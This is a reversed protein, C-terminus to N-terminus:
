KFIKNWMKKSITEKEEVVAIDKLNSLNTDTNVEIVNSKEKPFLNDPNYLKRKENDVKQRNQCNITDINKKQTDSMWYNYDLWCLLDIAEKSVNKENFIDNKNIKTKFNINRRVKITEIINVPIKMVTSKDMYSLIEYVEEYTNRSIM